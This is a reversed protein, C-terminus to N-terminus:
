ITIGLKKMLIISDMPELSLARKRKNKYLMKFVKFKVVAYDCSRKKDCRDFREAQGTSPNNEFFNERSVPFFPREDM